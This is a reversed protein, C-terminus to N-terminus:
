ESSDRILPSVSNTTGIEDSPRGRLLGEPNRGLLDTVTRISRATRNLEHLTQRFDQQLASDDALTNSAKDFFQHAQQLTRQTQPLLEQNMQKLAKSLESLNTDLNQSISALPLQEVKNVIRILQEQLKDFSGNITPLILPRANEDFAVRPASPIFDLSVYLQGTLLNGSRTQARLGHEVLSRLFHAVKQQSDGNGKIQPLKKQIRTLRRPYLEIGVIGPFRKKRADYDIEISVVRGVNFGSLEVPAGVKLGRLSQEFRLQIYHAPGDPPALASTKDKALRYETNAPAPLQIHDHASSFAIGGTMVTTLSQTKLEFGDASLSVDVGSANWFRTDPTVFRNYPEDIFIQLSFGQGDEDLQYSAIHGVKIRRFYVPSEIDLSGLDDTRIIFTTGRRGYAIIPPKELGTFKKATQQSNGADVGIYVGSLLTDIGSIGNIGIRPRVIWFRSDVRALSEASKALSVNAIVYSRDPSLEISSVTGVTVDRYKVPTKGAELGTATQFTIAIEPGKSRWTHILMSLAIITAVVPVLWILSFRSQRAIIPNRTESINEPTPIM